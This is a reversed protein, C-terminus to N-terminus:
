RLTLVNQLICETTQTVWVALTSFHILTLGPSTTYSHASAAPYPSVSLARWTMLRMNFGRELLITSQCGIVHRKQVRM